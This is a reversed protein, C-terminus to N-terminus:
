GGRARSGGSPNRKCLRLSNSWHAAAQVASSLNPQKHPLRKVLSKGAGRLAGSRHTRKPDPPCNGLSCATTESPATSRASFVLFGGYPAPPLSDKGRLLAVRTVTPWDHSRQNPEGASGKRCLLKIRELSPKARIIRELDPNHFWVTLQIRPNAGSRASSHVAVIASASPRLLGASGPSEPNEAARSMRIPPQSCALASASVGLSGTIGPATTAM